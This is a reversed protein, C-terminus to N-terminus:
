QKSCTAGGSLNSMSTVLYATAPSTHLGFSSAVGDLDRLVELSCAVYNRANGVYLSLRQLFIVADYAAMVKNHAAEYPRLKSELCVDPTESTKCEEIIAPAAAKLDELLAADTEEVVSRAEALATRMAEGDEKTWDSTTACGTLLLCVVLPRFITM